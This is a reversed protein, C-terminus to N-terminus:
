LGAGTGGQEADLADAGPRSPPGSLLGRMVRQGHWCGLAGQPSSMPRTQPRWEQKREGKPIPIPTPPLGSCFSVAQCLGKHLLWGGGQLGQEWKACLAGEGSPRRGDGLLQAPDGEGVGANCGAKHHDTEAWSNMLQTGEPLNSLRESSMPLRPSTAEPCLQCTM